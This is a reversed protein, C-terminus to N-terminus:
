NQFERETNQVIQNIHQQTDLLLEATLFDQQKM